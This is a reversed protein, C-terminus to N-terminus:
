DRAHAREQKKGFVSPKAKLRVSLHQTAATRALWHFKGLRDSNQKLKERRDFSTELLREVYIAKQYTLYHVMAVHCVWAMEDFFFLM